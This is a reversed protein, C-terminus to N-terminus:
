DEFVDIELVTNCKECVIVLQKICVYADTVIENGCFPCEIFKGSIGKLLKKGHKYENHNGRLM